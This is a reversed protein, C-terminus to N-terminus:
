YQTELWFEGTNWGWKILNSGVQVVPQIGEVLSTEM